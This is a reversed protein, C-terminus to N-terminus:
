TEKREDTFHDFLLTDNECLSLQAADPDPGEEDDGIPYQPEGFKHCWDGCRAHKERRHCYQGKMVGGREIHLWGNEDIKGTM